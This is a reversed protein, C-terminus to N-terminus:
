KSATKSKKAAMKKKYAEQKLAAKKRAEEELLAQAEAYKKNIKSWESDLIAWNEPSIQNITQDYIKSKLPSAGFEKRQKPKRIEIM